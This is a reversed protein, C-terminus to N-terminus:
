YHLAAHHLLKWKKLATDLGREPDGMGVIMFHELTGKVTNQKM